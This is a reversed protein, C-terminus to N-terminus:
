RPEAADTELNVPTQPGDLERLAAQVEPRALAASLATLGDGAEVGAGLLARLQDLPGPAAPFPQLIVSEDPSVGAAERAIEIAALFGGIEDVLGLQVAQDGTWVRGRALTEVRALPLGRGEAVLRTFEQYTAEAYAEVGARQAETFGDIPSLAGTFAGGATVSDSTVGARELAPGFAIKGFIVGISGTLTGANAIIQDAPAAIYYGGSAAVSGMSVIVPKGGRRARLIAAAIQDSATASGGGTDLRILIARVDPDAAAADIAASVDDSAIVESAGLTRPAVGDIVPGQGTILAIVPGDAPATRRRGYVDLRELAAGGARALAHRQAEELQGLRDVLGAELAAAALHPGAAVRQEIQPAALGRGQAISAIATGFLSDLWAQAAERGAESYGSRTFIEAAGKYEYLQLFQAEAGLRTLADGLFLQESRLGTAAFWGTPHMWIEDAGSVAVYPALGGDMFSQVHAIVPKGAAQLRGLAARIEEADAPTVGAGTRVFAGAVNPDDAAQDLAQVMEILSLAGSRALGSRVPQDLRPQRLDIDLVVAAQDSAPGDIRQDVLHAVWASIAFVALLLAVAIAAIVGLMSGFFSIWFQRM